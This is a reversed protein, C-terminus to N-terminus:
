SKIFNSIYSGKLFFGKFFLNNILLIKSLKLYRVNKAKFTFYLTKNYIVVIFNNENKLVMFNLKKPIYINM